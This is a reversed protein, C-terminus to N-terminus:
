FKIIYNVNINIPRTENGGTAMTPNDPDMSEDSGSTNSTTQRDGSGYSDTPLGHAHSRFQDAQISGIGATNGGTSGASRSGADPDRGTGSDIGRLFRGRMDPVNFSTGTTGFGNGIATYLAAYTTRLYSTGDCLLWGSPATTGGYAMISGAPCLAQQVAAVLAAQSVTGASLNAGALATLAAGNGSFSAASAAGDVTLSSAVHASGNVDLKSAPTTTGIGVNTNSHLSLYAGSRVTTDVNMSLLLATDTWATGAATRYGSIALSSSNTTQFGFNGLVLESSVTAGLTGASTAFSSSLTNANGNQPSGISLKAAPATSSGIGVNGGSPNLQLNGTINAATYSQLTSQNATTDFGINLRKTPDTNGRIVLQQAPTSADDGQLTLKNTAAFSSTSGIGVQGAANWALAINKTGSANSGLAGGANGYLVPGDVSISNFTRGSGYWGLGYNSATGTVPNIALDIGSAISDAVKAHFAFATSTIQQRPSIPVDAATITNDGSDVAIELFRAASTAFVASLDTHAAQETTLTASGGGSALGSAVIGNGLLVSFVGSSITATQEETWLPTGGTSASYIRFIIKRNTPAATYSAATGTAGIPLGSSDAVKGQYNIYSPVDAHLTNQALCLLTALLATQKM